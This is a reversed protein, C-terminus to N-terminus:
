PVGYMSVGAPKSTLQQGLLLCTKGTSPTPKITQLLTTPLPRGCVGGSAADHHYASCTNGAATAKM